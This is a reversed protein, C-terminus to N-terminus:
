HIATGLLTKWYQWRWPCLRIGRLIHYLATWRYGNARYVANGLLWVRHEALQKRVVRRECANLRVWTPLHQRWFEDVALQTKQAHWFSSATNVASINGEHVLYDVHKNRVYACRLGNAAAEIRFLVDQLILIERLPVQRLVGSRLVTAQFRVPLRHRIINEVLRDPLLVQLEGRMEVSFATRGPWDEMLSPGCARGEADVPQVDGFVWDIDRHEELMQVLQRLHYVPWADDSDLFATYEGRVEDVGRARAGGDGHAYRDNTVYRVRPERAAVEAVLQSTNDTSADDVVILEWNGYTQALISGFAKPLLRARNYTPLVISVLPEAM